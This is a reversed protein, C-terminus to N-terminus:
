FIPLTNQDRLTHYYLFIYNIMMDLKFPWQNGNKFDWSRGTLTTLFVYFKSKYDGM